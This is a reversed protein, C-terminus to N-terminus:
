NDIAFRSKHLEHSMIYRLKIRNTEFAKLIALKSNCEFHKGTKLIVLVKPMLKAVCKGEHCEDYEERVNMINMMVNMM